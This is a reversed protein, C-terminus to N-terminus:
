WRRFRKRKKRFTCFSVLENMTRIMGYDLVVHSFGGAVFFLMHFFFTASFAPFFTSCLYWGSLAVFVIFWWQHFIGRHRVLMPTIAIISCCAMYEFQQKCVMIIFCCLVIWYFYKQGKSKIDIDPFLAGALTCILWEGSVVWCPTCSRCVFWYVLGFAGLGGALHGKYNPM